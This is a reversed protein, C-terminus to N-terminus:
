NIYPQKVTGFPGSASVTINHNSGSSYNILINNPGYDVVSRDATLPHILLQTNALSTLTETPVTFNSTYVVSKTYRISSVHGNVTKNIVWQTQSSGSVGSISPITATGNVVGNIYITLTTDSRTLAVHYWQQHKDNFGATNAICNDYTSFNQAGTNWADAFFTIASQYGINGFHLGWEGNLAGVIIDRNAAGTAQNYATNRKVFCEITWNGALTLNSNIDTYYYPQFEEEANSTIRGYLFMSGITSTLTTAPSPELDKPLAPTKTGIHVMNNGDHDYRISKTFRVDQIFGSWGTTGSTNTFDSGLVSDSSSDTYSAVYNAALGPPAGYSAMIISGQYIGNIYFYFNGQRRTMVIHDWSQSTTTAATVSTSLTQNVTPTTGGASQHKFQWVGSPTIGILMNNAYHFLVNGYTAFPAEGGATADHWQAWCEFTFDGYWNVMQMTDQAGGNLIIRDNFTSEKNSFKWSGIGFKKNKYSISGGNTVPTIDGSLNQIPSDGTSQFVTNADVTWNQTPVTYTTATTDYRAIDSIRPNSMYAQWQLDEYHYSKQGKTTFGLTSTAVRKGNSFLALKPSKTPDFVVALHNWCHPQLAPDTTTNSAITQVGSNHATWLSFSWNGWSEARSSNYHTVLQFGERGASSATYFSYSGGTPTAPNVNAPYHWIEITWPKEFHSIWVFNGKNSTGGNNHSRAVGGDQSSHVLEGMFNIDKNTGSALYPGFSSAQISWASTFNADSRGGISVVCTSGTVSDKLYGTTASLLFSTNAIEQVPSTPLDFRDPNKNALVDSYAASGKVIRVDSIYGFMSVDQAFILTNNFLTLKDAGTNMTTTYPIEQVKIGDVYLAIMGNVRQVCIHYWIGTDIKNYNDQLICKGSSHVSISRWPSIDIGIGTDTWSSRTDLIARRTVWTDYPHKQYVWLEISFDGTGFEFQSNNQLAVIKEADGGSQCCWSMGKSSFPNRGGVSSETSRKITTLSSDGVNVSGPFAVRPRRTGTTGILFLTENFSASMSNDIFTTTEVDFESTYKATNSIRLGCAVGIFSYQDNRSNLVRLETSDTYNTSVTGTYVLAGNLYMKFQNSGIGERVAAVHYWGGPSVTGGTTAAITTTGDDWTLFGTTSVRFTWGTGTGVNGTGKGAIPLNSSLGTQGPKIWCEVTFNNTGFRLLTPYPGGEYVKYSGTNSYLSHTGHGILKPYPIFFPSDLERETNTGNNLSITAGQAHKSPITDHHPKLMSLSFITNAGTMTLPGTPATFNGTYVADNNLRIDTIKGAFTTTTTAVRDTGIRLINTDTFNGTSTGTASLTGNVYIKLSSASTSTRVVAIHYWQDVALVTGTTVTSANSVGDYFGITRTTSVYVVWGTGGSTRGALTGKSLIYYETGDYRELKVWFELTFAGTGFRQNAADTVAYSNNEIFKTSWDRYRPGQYHLQATPRTTSVAAYYEDWGYDSKDKLIHDDYHIDSLHLPTINGYIDNLPNEELRSSTNRTISSKESSKILYSDDISWIGSKSSPKVNSVKGIIGANKRIRSM